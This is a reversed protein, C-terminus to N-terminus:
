TPNKTNVDLFLRIEKWVADRCFDQLIEHRYGPFLRLISSKGKKQLRAHVKKVGKGFAGVPDDEGSLLLIPMGDPVRSFFAASNAKAQLRILDSLAGVSFRFTCFPDDKYRLLNATDVTIWRNPYDGPFRSDYDSFVMAQMFHSIHRKGYVAGIGDALAIGLSANPEPGGTGMLILGNPAVLEMAAIRVIFSGMSHGALFYPLDKGYEERIADSTIKVDEVLHKWGEKEAFFGLESPNEATRGHGLLDFGFALYGENALLSLFEDYRETYDTMGHVMQFIGRVEGQPLYLRGALKHIGDSSLIRKERLEM